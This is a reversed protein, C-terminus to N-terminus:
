WPASGWKNIFEVRDIATQALLEGRTSENAFLNRVPHSPVIALGGAHRAQWDLDTDGWWWRFREDARLQLEGRLMFAWGCMRNSSDDDHTYKIITQRLNGHPDSCAAACNNDRLARSVRDLWGVPVVADDNLIAVDYKDSTTLAALMQAAALGVNWLRSLNPPQEADRIVTVGANYAFKKLERPNVHPTSANDIIIVDNVDPTVSAVLGALETHRNHTAIVVYRPITM